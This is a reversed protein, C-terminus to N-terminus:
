ATLCVAGISQYCFVKSINRCIYKEVCGVSRCLYVIGNNQSYQHWMKFVTMLATFIQTTYLAYFFLNLVRFMRWWLNHTLSSVLVQSWIKQGMYHSYSTPFRISVWKWSITMVQWQTVHLIAKQVPISLHAIMWGNMRGNPRTWPRPPHHLREWSAPICTSRVQWLSFTYLVLTPSWQLTLCNIIM